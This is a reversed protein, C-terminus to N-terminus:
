GQLGTVLWWLLVGLGAIGLWFALRLWTLLSVRRNKEYPDLFSVPAVHERLARLSGPSSASSRARAM